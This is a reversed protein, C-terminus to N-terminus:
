YGIYYLGTCDLFVLNKCLYLEMLSAAGSSFDVSCALAQSYLQGKHVSIRQRPNM